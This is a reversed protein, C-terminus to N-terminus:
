EVTSSVWGSGMCRGCPVMGAAYDGTLGFYEGKGECDTCPSSAHAGYLEREESGTIRVRGPVREARAPPPRAHFRLERQERCRPCPGRFVLWLGHEDHSRTMPPAFTTDGCGHALAALQRRAEDESHALLM